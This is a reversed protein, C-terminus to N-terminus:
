SQPVNPDQSRRVEDLGRASLKEAMEGRAVLRKAQEKEAEFEAQLAAVRAEMLAQKREVENHRSEVEQQRL